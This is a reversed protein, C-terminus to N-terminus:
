KLRVFDCQVQQLAENCTFTCFSSKKGYWLLEAINALNLSQVRLPSIFSSSEPINFKTMLHKPMAFVEHCFKATRIEETLLLVTDIQKRFSFTKHVFKMYNCTHDKIIVESLPITM